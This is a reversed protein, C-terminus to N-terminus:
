QQQQQQQPQWLAPRQGLTNIIYPSILNLQPQNVSMQQIPTQFSQMIQQQSQNQAQSSQPLSQQQQQLLTQRFNTPTPMPIPIPVPIPKDLYLIGILRGANPFLVMGNNPTNPFHVRAGMKRKDLNTLLSGFYKQNEDPINSTPLFYVLPLQRTKLDNTIEKIPFIGTIEMKEPWLHLNFDLNQAPIANVYCQSERRTDTNPVSSQWTIQGSWISLKKLQQQQPKPRQQQVNAMHMFLQTPSKNVSVQAGITNQTSFQGSLLNAPSQGSFGNTSPQITVLAKELKHQSQAFQAKLEKNKELLEQNIHTSNWPVEPSRLLTQPLGLPRTSQIPQSVPMAVNLPTSSAGRTITALLPSQLNQNLAPSMPIPSFVLPPTAQINPSPQPIPSSRVPQVNQPIKQSTLLPTKKIRMNLSHLTPSSNPTQRLSHSVLLGQDSKENKGEHLDVSPKKSAPQGVVHGMELSEDRKRKQVVVENVSPIPLKIEGALMLFHGSDIGQSTEVHNRNVMNILNELETKQGEPTLLSLFIQQNKMEECIQAMSFNDFKEDFNFHVLDALPESNSVLICHRKPELSDPNKRSNYTEFMELASVLGEAVANRALGGHKFELGQLQAQFKTLDSMFYRSEVPCDSFPRYHGFVVLGCKLTPTMRDKSANEENEILIPQKLQKLMNKLYSELLVEFHNALSHTGDVVVVVLIEPPSHSSNIAPM